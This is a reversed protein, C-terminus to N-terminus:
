IDPKGIVINEYNFLNIDLIKRVRYLVSVRIPADLYITGNLYDYYMHYTKINEIEMTDPNYIRDYLKYKLLKKM